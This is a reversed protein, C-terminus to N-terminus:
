SSIGLKRTMLFEILLFDLESDVDLSKEVGIDYGEMHGDLMYESTRIYAPDMIYISAVHEFVDPADQRRVISGPLTKSIKMAGEDNKEVMNFYPNKRAECVTFVGDAGTKRRERFMGVINSIDAIDRLPGTCDLDLFFEFKEGYHNEFASLAHKWVDFKGAESTSLHDPRLFPVDAGANRSIEAIAESDTSVAVHDIEPTALAQEISWVIMPKGLLPRINKGPLGKSGGRASIVCLGTM